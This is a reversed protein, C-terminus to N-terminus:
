GFYRQHIDYLAFPAAVVGYVIFGVLLSVSLALRVRRDSIVAPAWRTATFIIGPLVPLWYRGQPHLTRGTYLDLAYVVVTFAIASTVAPQSGLRWVVQRGAGRTCLRALRPGDVAGRVIVLTVVLVSLLAIAVRLVATVAVSGFVLPTDLWGFKGWFSIAVQGCCFYDATSASIQAGAFELFSGVGGHVANMFAGYGPRIATAQAEIARGSYGWVLWSQLSLALTVPIAAIAALRTLTRWPAAAAVTTGTTLVAVAFFQEKTLALAGLAAGLIWARAICPQDRLRLAALLAANMIAFALIDPQLASGVFATLPFFGVAATLALAAVRGAGSRIALPYVLGVGLAMLAVSLLRGALLAEVTGTIPSAVALMVALLGYYGVPYIVVLIPLKDPPALTSAQRDLDRFYAPSGYGPPMRTEPHHHVARFDTRDELLQLLPSTAQDASSALPRDNWRVPHGATRIALAYDLHSDEDPQQLLPVTFVWVAALAASM